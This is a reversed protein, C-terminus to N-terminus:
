RLMMDVMNLLLLLQAGNNAFTGGDAILIKFFVLSKSIM